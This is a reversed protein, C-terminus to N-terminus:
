ECKVRPRPIKMQFTSPSPVLIRFDKWRRLNSFKIIGSYDFDSKKKSGLTIPKHVSIYEGEFSLNAELRSYTGLHLSPLSTFGFATEKLFSSVLGLWRAM